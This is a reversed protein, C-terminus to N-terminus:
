GIVTANPAHEQDPRLSEPQSETSRWITGSVGHVRVDVRWADRGQESHKKVHVTTFSDEAIWGTTKYRAVCGTGPLKVVRDKAEDFDPRRANAFPYPAYMPSAVICVSKPGVREKRDNEFWVESCMSLHPDGCLFIVNEIKQKLIFLFLQMLQPRFGDWGDSRGLYARQRTVRLFPVFVSPSIIFKPRDSNRHKLLWSRLTEFQTRGLIRARGERMSRTDCVFFPFGQLEFDYHYIERGRGDFKARGDNGPSHVWQYQRFARLGDRRMAREEESLADTPHWNDAVEHDDMMMFVPLQSLVARANPATWAERYAEYYRERRDKPDFAGATADAYIQDGLLFLASPRDQTQPGLLGNIKEFVADARERDVLWGPYRCSSAAITLEDPKDGEPITVTACDIKDERAVDGLKGRAQDRLSVINAALKDEVTEDGAVKLHAQAASPRKGASVEAESRMVALNKDKETEVEVSEHVSLVVIEYKGSGNGLEVDVCLRTDVPGVVISDVDGPTAPTPCAIIKPHGFVKGDQFVQVVASKAPSRLDDIRCWIRARWTGNADRRVWGLVPGILPRRLYYSRNQGSDRSVQGDSEQPRKGSQLRRIMAGVGPWRLYFPEEDASSQREDFDFRGTDLFYSVRRFVDREAHKGILPDLHRYGKLIQLGAAGGGRIRRLLERSRLSTLPHFVDNDSGHLFLTPFTFYDRVNETTVYANRAQSDTLRELVGYQITQEWTTISSHGLVEDLNYLMEPSLNEHRFMLGDIAAWRNCNAIHRNRWGWCWLRHHTAENAPYPYTNLLRDILGQAWDARDDVSFDVHGNPLLRRLPALALARLRTGKSLTVLPGVQLLVARRVKSQGSSHQLRGCLVATCFMASGICHAVVDIQRDTRKDDPQREPSTKELVFDVIRPIDLRAVEDLSWQDLSYPLAISTRLEAVWVDFGQDALHRVLNREVRTTAFQIGGSGLGHLLLVPKGAHAGKGRYRTIPLFVGADRPTEPYGVIHREMELPEIVGPLRRVERMPDYKKYDPLRFSWFHIRLITRAIFLALSALDMWATPLDRQRTLKLQSNFGRFFYAPDVTLIGLEVPPRGAQHAALKLDVLQRWPNTAFGYKLTKRGHLETGASLLEAGKEGKLPELLTFKYFLYRVEGVNSALDCYSKLIGRSIGRRGKITEVIKDVIDACGRNRLYAGLANCRRERPGTAGRVLLEVCGEVPVPSLWQHEGGDRAAGRVRLTGKKLRLRHLPDQLFRLLNPVPEFEMELEAEAVGSGPFNLEGTMRESFAVATPIQRPTSSQFSPLDPPDPRKPKGKCRDWRQEKAYCKIARDALATITLLPNVGLATPIISGDLVLLGEHTQKGSVDRFVRGMHDVVGDKADDAMPCGGLPHVSFVLGAPKEGSLATAIGAPIPQWMPNRLYTGKREAAISAFLKDQTQYVPSKGARPWHIRVAGDNARGRHRPDDWGPVLELSGAADDDGMAAFVHCRGVIEPDVAAPDIAPASLQGGAPDERSIRMHPTDDPEGLRSLMLSTTVVEEFIRRLAGPIALDEIVIRDGRTDGSCAIGTITPGVERKSFETSEEPAANAESGPSYLASIMDGNTSLQAGLRDSVRFERCRERSRMLIETSGLAGAALIVTKARLEHVADEEKPLPTAGTTPAVLVAWEHGPRTEVHSVTVGTYIRAGYKWADALYNTSLTNKAGFNCGTACDGCQICKTPDVTIQARAPVLGVKRAFEAFEKHKKLDKGSERSKICAESAGLEARLPAFIAELAEEDKWENRICEPWGSKFVDPRPVAAVGANILSGGGLGNALLVTVDKGIRFDFLGDHAGKAEPDDFRSYRVHGPLESFTNPFTGPLHERGRELVCVDLNNGTQDLHAALRAAAVAGGYGSGVVIVDYPQRGHEWEKLLLEAGQSLWEPKYM